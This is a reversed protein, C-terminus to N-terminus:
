RRRRQIMEAYRPDNLIFVCGNYMNVFVHMYARKETACVPVCVCVCLAPVCGSVDEMKNGAM